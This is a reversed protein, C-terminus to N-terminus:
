SIVGSPGGMDLMDAEWPSVLIAFKCTGATTFIKLTRNPESAYYGQLRGVLKATLTEGPGVPFGLVINPIDTKIYFTNVLDINKLMLVGGHKGITLWNLNQPNTFTNVGTYVVFPDRPTTDAIGDASAMFSGAIGDQLPGAEEILPGTSVYLRVQSGIFTSGAFANHDFHANGGRVAVKSFKRRYTAGQRMRLWPNSSEGLRIYGVMDPSLEDVYVHDGSVQWVREGTDNATSGFKYSLAHYISEDQQLTRNRPSLSEERPLPQPMNVAAEIRERPDFALDPSPNSADGQKTADFDM